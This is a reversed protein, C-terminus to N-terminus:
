GNKKKLIELETKLQQIEYELENIRDRFMVEVKTIAALIMISGKGYDSITEDNNLDISNQLLQERISIEVEQGVAGKNKVLTKDNMMKIYSQVSKLSKAENQSNTQILEDARQNFKAMQAEREEQEKKQQEFKRNKIKLGRTAVVEKETDEFGVRDNPGPINSSGQTPPGYNRKSVGSFNHM